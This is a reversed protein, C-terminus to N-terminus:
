GGASETEEVDQLDADSLSNCLYWMLKLGARGDFNEECVKKLRRWTLMALRATPLIGYNLQITLGQDQVTRCCTSYRRGSGTGTRM